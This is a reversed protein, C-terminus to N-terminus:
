FGTDSHALCPKTSTNKHLTELQIARTLFTRVSKRNKKIQAWFHNIKPMHGLMIAYTLKQFYFVFWGFITRLVDLRHHSAKGRFSHFGHVTTRKTSTTPLVKIVELTSLTAKCLWTKRKRECELFYNNFFPIRHLALQWKRHPWKQQKQMWADCCEPM